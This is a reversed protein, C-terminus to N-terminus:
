SYKINNHEYETELGEIFKRFEGMDMVRGNKIDDESKRIQEYFFIRFLEEETLTDVNITKTKEKDM